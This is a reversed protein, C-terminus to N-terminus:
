ASVFHVWGMSIFEKSTCFNFYELAFSFKVHMGDMRYGHMVMAISSPSVTASQKSTFFISDGNMLLEDDKAFLEYAILDSLSSGTEFFHHSTINQAVTNASHDDAIISCEFKRFGVKTYNNQEPCKGTTTITFNFIIPSCPKSSGAFSPYPLISLAFLMLQFFHFHGSKDKKPWTLNM